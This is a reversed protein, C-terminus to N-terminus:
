CWYIPSKILVKTSSELVRTGGKYLQSTIKDLFFCFEPANEDIQNMTEDVFSSAAKTSIFVAKPAANPALSHTTFM